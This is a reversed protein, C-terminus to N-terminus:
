VGSDSTCDMLPDSYVLQAGPFMTVMVRGKSRSEVLGKFVEVAMFDPGGPATHLAFSLEIPKSAAVQGALCSAFLVVSIIITAKGKWNM